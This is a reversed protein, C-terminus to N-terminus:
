LLQNGSDIKDWNAPTITITVSGKELVKDPDTSGPRLITIDILYWHNRQVGKVGSIYGFGERNIVIPYYYLTGDLKAELVLKTFGNEASETAIINEYCHFLHSKSYAGEGEGIESTIVDALMGPISCAAIDAAKLGKQNLVKPDAPTGGNFLLKEGIVNTLYLRAESLTKGLYPTGEFSTKISRVEIRAVLKSLPITVTSTITLNETISGTMTFDAFNEKVAQAVKSQFLLLTTVGGWDTIHSNAIVYIEKKGTSTKVILDSLTSLEEASFKKYVDLKGNNSATGTNHFVFVELTNINQDNSETPFEDPSSYLTKTRNSHLNSICLRLTSEECPLDYEVENKCGMLTNLLLIITLLKCLKM